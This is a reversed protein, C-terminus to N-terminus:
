SVAEMRQLVELLTIPATDNDSLLTTKGKGKRERLGGFASSDDQRVRPLAGLSAAKVRFRLYLLEAAVLIPDVPINGSLDNTYKLLEDFTLLHRVIADRHEDLVALAVFFKFDTGAAWGTEVVEWLRCVSEFAFERKFLVLFWRFCCFLNSSDISALHAHLGPDMQSILLDMTQLQLRMGSGDHRFNNKLKLDEMFNAFCWFADVEDADTIVVFPSALDSMGQVYGLGESGEYVATYTILLDRLVNLKPPGPGVGPMRQRNLSPAPHGPPTQYFAHSSDTRLIDKDVRTTADRFMATPSDEVGSSLPSDSDVSDGLRQAISLWQQKMRWYESSRAAKIAKREAHTSDWPYLGFLFRWVEGRVSPDVGGSFIRRKIDSLSAVIKGAANDPFVHDDVGRQFDEQSVYIMSAAMSMQLQMQQQRHKNDSASVASPLPVHHDFYLRWEAGSLPTQRVVKPPPPTTDTSLVEFTGLRTEAQVTEDWVVALRSSEDDECLLRLRGSNARASELISGSLITMSSSLLDASGEGSFPTQANLSASAAAAASEIERSRSVQLEHAWRALYVRAPEYEHHAPEPPHSIILTKQLSAPIYPLIPRALPHELISAATRTVRTFRELISWRTEDVVMQRKVSSSILDSFMDTDAPVSKASSPSTSPTWFADDEEDVEGDEQPKRRRM